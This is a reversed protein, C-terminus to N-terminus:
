KQRVTANTYIKGHNGIVNITGVGNCVITYGNIDKSNNIKNNVLELRNLTANWCAFAQGKNNTINNNEVRVVASPNLGMYVLGAGIKESGNFMIDNHHYLINTAVPSKAGAVANHHLYNGAVEISDNSSMDIGYNTNGFSENSYILMKALSQFKADIGHLGYSSTNYRVTIRSNDLKYKTLFAIGSGQDHKFNKVEIFEVLINGKTYYGDIGNLTSGNGNLTFNRIINNEGQLNIACSNDKSNSINNIITKGIGAGQLIVNSPINIGNTTEIICAPMVIKGGEEPIANILSQLATQTCEKLQYVNQSPIRFGQFGWTPNQLPLCEKTQLRQYQGEQCPLNISFDTDAYLGISVIILLFLNKM